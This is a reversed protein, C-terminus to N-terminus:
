RLEAYICNAVIVGKLINCFPRNESYSEEDMQGITSRQLNHSKKIKKNKPTEVHEM